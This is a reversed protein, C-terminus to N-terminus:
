LVQTLTKTHSPLNSAAFNGLRMSCCCSFFLPLPLSLHKPSSVSYFSITIYALLSTTNTRENLTFCVPGFLKRNRFGCSCLAPDAVHLAFCSEYYSLAKLFLLSLFYVTNHTHTISESVLLLYLTCKNTHASQKQRSTHTLHGGQLSPAPESHEESSQYVGKPFSLNVPKLPQVLTHTHQTQACKHTHTTNTCVQTHTTNACM